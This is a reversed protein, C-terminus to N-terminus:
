VPASGPEGTPSRVWATRRIRSVGTLGGVSLRAVDPLGSRGARRRSRIPHTRVTGSLRRGARRRDSGRHGCRGAPRRRRHDRQRGASPRHRHRHVTRPWWRGHGELVGAADRHAHSDIRRPPRRGLRFGSGRGSELLGTARRSRTARDHADDAAHRRPDGGLRDHRRRDSVSVIGASRRSRRGAAMPRCM